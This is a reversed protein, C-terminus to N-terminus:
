GRRGFLGSLVVVLCLMGLMSFMSPGELNTGTSCLNGFKDYRCLDALARNNEQSQALVAATLNLIKEGLAQLASLQPTTLIAHTKVM